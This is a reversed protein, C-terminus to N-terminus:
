KFRWLMGLYLSNSWRRLRRLYNDGEDLPRGKVPDGKTKKSLGSFDSWREVDLM